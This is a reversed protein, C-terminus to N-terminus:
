IEKCYLKNNDKPLSTPGDVIDNIILVNVSDHEEELVKLNM